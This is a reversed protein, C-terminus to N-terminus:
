KAYKKKACSMCMVKHTKKDYVSDEVWRRGTLPISHDLRKGCVSCRVVRKRDIAHRAEKQESNGGFISWNGTKKRGANGLVLKKFDTM